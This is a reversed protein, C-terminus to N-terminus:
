VSKETRSIKGRRKEREVAPGDSKGGINKSIFNHVGFNREWMQPNYTHQATRYFVIIDEHIRLPRDKALFPNSANAKREDNMYYLCTACLRQSRDNMSYYGYICGHCEEVPCPDSSDETYDDFTFIGFNCVSEQTDPLDEQTETEKVHDHQTVQSTEDTIPASNYSMAAPKHPTFHPYLADRVPRIYKM